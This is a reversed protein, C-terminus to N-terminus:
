LQAAPELCQRAGSSPSPKGSSPVVLTLPALGRRRKGPPKHHRIIWTVATALLVGPSPWFIVAETPSSFPTM